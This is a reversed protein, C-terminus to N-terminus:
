RFDINLLHGYLLVFTMVFCRMELGGAWVLGLHATPLMNGPVCM